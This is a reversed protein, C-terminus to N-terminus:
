GTPRYSRDKLLRFGALSRISPDRLLDSNTPINQHFAFLGNFEKQNYTQEQEHPYGYGFCLRRCPRLKGARRAARRTVIVDVKDVLVGTPRNPCGSQNVLCGISSVSPCELEGFRAGM